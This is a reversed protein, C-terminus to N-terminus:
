INLISYLTDIKIVDIMSYNSQTYPDINVYTKELKGIPKTIPDKLTLVHM